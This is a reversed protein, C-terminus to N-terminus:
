HQVQNSRMVAPPTWQRGDDLVRLRLCERVREVSVGHHRYGLEHFTGQREIHGVTEPTQHFSVSVVPQM